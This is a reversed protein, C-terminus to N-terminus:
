SNGNIHNNNRRMKRRMSLFFSIVISLISGSIIALMILEVVISTASPIFKTEIMKEALQGADAIATGPAAKGAEVLNNLQGVIFGPEIWKMYVVLGAGSILIGCVFIVIGHMWLAPFSSMEGLERDYRRIFLYILTPVGLMLGFSLLGLLPLKPAFISSFFLLTLYIGFTFGDDAGRHYPSKIM